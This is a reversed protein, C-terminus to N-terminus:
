KRCLVHVVTSALLLIGLKYHLLGIPSNAGEVCAMLLIGTIAVILFVVSLFLTTRHKNTTRECMLTKYWLRHRKAHAAVSLLWLFSVAMHAVGWNHWTEHSNGHGAIHLGIGTVASAVFAIPLLWAIRPLARKDAKHTPSTPTSKSFVGNPRVKICKGCGICADANEFIVHRHWFRGAKGIVKQPCQETCVWCAACRNPAMAVYRTTTREM